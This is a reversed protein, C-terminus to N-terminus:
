PQVENACLRSSCMECVMEHATEDDSLIPFVDIDMRDVEGEHARCCDCCVRAWEICYGIINSSPKKV